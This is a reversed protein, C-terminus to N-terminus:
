IGLELISLTVVLGAAAIREDLGCLLPINSSTGMRIMLESQMYFRFKSVSYLVDIGDVCVMQGNLGVSEDISVRKGLKIGLM